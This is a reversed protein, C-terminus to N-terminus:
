EIRNSIDVELFITQTSTHDISSIVACLANGKVDRIFIDVQRELDFGELRQLLDRLTM